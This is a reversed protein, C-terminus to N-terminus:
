KQSHTTYNKLSCGIESHNTQVISMSSLLVNKRMALIFKKTQIQSEDVNKQTASVESVASNSDEVTEKKTLEHENLNDKM